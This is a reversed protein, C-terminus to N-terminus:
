GRVGIKKSPTGHKDRSQVCKAMTESHRSIVDSMYFDTIPLVIKGQKVKDSKKGKHWENQHLNTAEFVPNLAVMRARVGKIDQYAMKQGLHGALMLIIELDDKASGLPFAARFAKQVRGETNVYTANKETYASGPLIVDAFSAGKDGTHGQYIVFADRLIHEPIDDAGYLYLVKLTKQSVVPTDGSVFGIDLAGVRAAQTHLVNFGNWDKQIMGYKDAIRKAAEHIAQADGTSLAGEGLILMPKKAQQLIKAFSHTGEEIDNLLSLETGIHTYPYTLDVEPGIVGVDFPAQLYRKRLRVNILSGEYRPDSGIILCADAMEIGSITTNFLYDARHKQPLYQSNQRCDLNDIKLQTMLDKLATLTEVDAFPGSIVGIEHPKVLDFKQKIKEFAESWTAPVLKRNKKIYPKDLRQRYLADWAFRTKDSIWDENIDENLRPLIRMVKGGRSDIRIHSGVADMVDISDTHALEWSRGTYSYPRSTLAGVPCIDIMNGSLETTVIHELATSIEMHEGRGLGGLQPMGAIENAFRVCRTCHICRTMFTKIIPGFDKDKVARKNEQFRSTGPGYAMTIDQLDCEGGQDCIPCDLPHNILLFELVGKRMKEVEPSNTTVEMGEAIPMACSAVPKRGGKMEVLCMRCNGAISLKPHYCFCPIEAGAEQCAQLLTLGSDVTIEKQNVKMTITTM